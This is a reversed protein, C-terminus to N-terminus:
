CGVSRRIADCVQRLLNENLECIPATLFSRQILSLNDTTLVCDTPMGDDRSLLVETPIGRFTRTAPVALVDSLAPILASRTVILHPRRKAGPPEYWWVEGRKVM